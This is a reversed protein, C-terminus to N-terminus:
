EHSAKLTQPTPTPTTIRKQQSFYEALQHIEDTTLGKAHHHMVTSDRGSNKFALMQTSFYTADLGALVPTTSHSNGLTGHCAACSAALTRIHITEQHNLTTTEASYAAPAQMFASLIGIFVLKFCHFITSFDRLISISPFSFFRTLCM